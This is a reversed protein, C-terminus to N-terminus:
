LKLRAKVYDIGSKQFVQRDTEFGCKHYFGVASARADCWILTVGMTKLKTCAAFILTRAIGHGQRHPEVAMKRLRYVSSADQDSFFSGVGVLSQNQFAGLHLATEDDFLKLAARSKNPWLVRQRLDLTQEATISRIEITM